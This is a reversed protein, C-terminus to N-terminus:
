RPNWLCLHDRLLFSVESSLVAPLMGMLFGPISDVQYDCSTVERDVRQTKKQLSVLAPPPATRAPSSYSQDRRGRVNAIFKISKTAKAETVDLVCSLLILTLCLAPPTILKGCSHPWLLIDRFFLEKLVVRPGPMSSIRHSLLGSGM